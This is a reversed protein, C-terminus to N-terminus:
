GCSARREHKARELMESLEDENLGSQAVEARLPRLVEDITPEALQHELLRAALKDVPLGAAQARTRLREEAEDSITINSLTM